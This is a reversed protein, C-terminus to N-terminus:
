IGGNVPLVKGNMYQNELALYVIARAAEAPTGVRRLASFTEFDAHLEPAIDASIGADLLGLAVLNVRVGDGGLEKALAVTMTSLMGQTASFHVPLPLSQARDLAGVFVIDGGDGATMPPALARVAEFPARCNVAYTAEMDDDGIDALSLARSIVACHVFIDPAEGAAVLAEVVGTAAGVDTLDAHVARAGYEAAIADARERNAHYTFVTPVGAASLQAVVEGGVAGSGGFVLARTRM